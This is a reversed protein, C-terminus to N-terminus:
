LDGLLPQVGHRGTRARRVRQRTGTDAKVEVLLPMTMQADGAAPAAATRAAALKAQNELVRM